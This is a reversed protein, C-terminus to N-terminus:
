VLLSSGSYLSALDNSRALAVARRVAADADVLGAGFTTDRGPTGLDMATDILIQRVQDGTLSSNVSWVLSAIGAVNPNAASTGGFYNTNGLKDVAPVDTPAVLTLNSGRNSYDALSVSTANTLGNVTTVGVGTQFWLNSESGPRLAGVSIVNSHTAELKAVGSVSTLYNPDTLNGGPGGNGAAFEFLAIDANNTILADLQALTGGDTLWSDGQIGGQFVVKMNNTRAYSIVQQIAQQLTIAGHRQWVGNVLELAGGYVNNVYVNSNWNIGAIGSGNNAASAMISISSHGHGYDGYYDISTSTTILRNIPIDVVGGTAGPATLIGTDLSAILINSAGQTFRWASDVDTVHLNWQQGFYLDNPHVQLELSSGDSFGLNEIGQFYIERGDALKIYDFATGKFIAQSATSAIPNFNSLSMGDISTISSQAVGLNLTDTGGRGLFVAGTGLGASYTFTDAAFTGATEGWSLVQIGQSCAVIQNGTTTQVITRLDYTGAIMSSFNALNILGNSLSSTTWTGLTAVLSGNKFADLHVNVIPVSSGLSYNIRLAGGQFVTNPTNDGSADYVRGTGQITTAPIITAPALAPTPVSFDISSARFLSPTPLV